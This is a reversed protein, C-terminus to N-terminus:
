AVPTVLHRTAGLPLWHINSPNSLYVTSVEDPNAGNKMPWQNKCLNECTAALAFVDVKKVLSFHGKAHGIRM